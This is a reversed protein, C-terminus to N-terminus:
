HKFDAIIEGLEAKVFKYLSHKLRLKVPIWIQLLKSNKDSNPNAEKEPMEM